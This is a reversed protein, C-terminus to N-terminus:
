VLSSVTSLSLGLLKSITPVTVRSVTRMILWRYFCYSRSPCPELRAMYNKSYFRAKAGSAGAWLQEVGRCIRGEDKRRENKRLKTELGWLV